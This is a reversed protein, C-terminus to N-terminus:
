YINLLSNGHRWWVLILRIFMEEKNDFSFYFMKWRKAIKRFEGRVGVRVCVCVFFCHSFHHLFRRHAITMYTFLSSIRYTRSSFVYFFTFKRFLSEVYTLSFGPSQATRPQRPLAYLSSPRHFQIFFSRYIKGCQTSALLM